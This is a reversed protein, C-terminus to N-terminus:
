LWSLLVLYHNFGFSAYWVMGYWVFMCWIKTFFSAWATESAWSEITGMSAGNRTWRMENMDADDNNNNWVIETNEVDDNISTTMTSFIEVRLDWHCHCWCYEVLAFPLFFSEPRRTRASFASAAGDGDDWVHKHTKKTKKKNKNQVLLRHIIM